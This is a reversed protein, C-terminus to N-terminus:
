QSQQAIVGALRDWVAKLAANADAEPPWRGDPFMARAACTQIQELTFNNKMCERVVRHALLWFTVAIERVGPGGYFPWGEVEAAVFVQKGTENWAQVQWGARNTWNLNPFIRNLACIRLEDENTATGANRCDAIAQQTVAVPMHAEWGGTPEPPVIPVKEVEPKTPKPVLAGPAAETKRTALKAVLGLGLVGAVFALFKKM